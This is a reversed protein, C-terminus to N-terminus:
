SPESPPNLGADTSRDDGVDYNLHVVVQSRTHGCVPCPVAPPPQEQGEVTIVETLLDPGGCHPCTANKGIQKELRAIRQKLTM